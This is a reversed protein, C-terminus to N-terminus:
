DPPKVPDTSSRDPPAPKPKPKPQYRRIQSGPGQSAAPIRKKGRAAGAPPETAEREPPDRRTEDGIPDHAAQWM